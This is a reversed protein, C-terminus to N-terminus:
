RCQIMRTFLDAASATLQDVVPQLVTRVASYTVEYAADGAAARAADRAADGAADWAADGAADWAADRAADWAAARAADGAAARAADWAAAAASRASELAPQAAVIHQTTTIEPLARLTAAHERLEPKMDLWAPTYVRVIWDMAMFARRIETDADAKTGLLQPIFPKLLATRTEDNPLGDNWARGFAGLVPSVCPPHDSHEEGAIWAVAEMLCVGEDRSGHDGKTLVIAALIREREDPSIETIPSM